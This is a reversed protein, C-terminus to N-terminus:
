SIIKISNKQKSRICNLKKTAITKNVIMSTAQKLHSDDSTRFKISEQARTTNATMKNILVAIKSKRQSPTQLHIDPAFNRSHVSQIHDTKLLLERCINLMTANNQALLPEIIAAILTSLYDNDTSFQKRDLQPRQSWKAFHNRVAPINSKKLLTWSKSGTELSVNFIFQHPRKLYAQKAVRRGM